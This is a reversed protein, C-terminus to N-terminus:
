PTRGRREGAGGKPGWVSDARAMSSGRGVARAPVAARQVATSAVVRAALVSGPSGVAQKDGGKRGHGHGVPVTTRGWPRRVATGNNDVQQASQVLRRGDAVAVPVDVRAGVGEVVGELVGVADTVADAVPVPVAVPEDLPVVVPVPVAVDDAVAVSDGVLVTVPVADAVAVTDTVPVGDSVPVLM